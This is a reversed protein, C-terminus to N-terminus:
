STLCHIVSRGDLTMRVLSVETPNGIMAASGGATMGIFNYINIYIYINYIICMYMYNYDYVVLPTYICCLLIRM